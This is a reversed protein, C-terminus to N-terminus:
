GGNRSAGQVRATGCHVHANGPHGPVGRSRGNVRGEAVPERWPRACARHGQDSHVDAAVAARPGAVAALVQSGALTCARSDRGPRRARRQGSRGGQGTAARCGSYVELAIGRCRATLTRTRHRVHPRLKLMAPEGRSYAYRLRHGRGVSFGRDDAGDARSVPQTRSTRSSWHATPEEPSGAQLTRRITGAAHRCAAATHPSRHGATRPEVARVAFRPCSCSM